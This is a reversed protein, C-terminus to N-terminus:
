YSGLAWKGDETNLGLSLNETVSQGDKARTVEVLVMATVSGSLISKKVNIKFATIPGKEADRAQLDAKFQELSVQQRKATTLMTYAEDYKGDKVLTMFTKAVGTANSSCGAVALLSVLLISVLLLCVTKRM